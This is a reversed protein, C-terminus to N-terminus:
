IANGPGRERVSVGCARTFSIHTCARTRAGCPNVSSTTGGALGGVAGPPPPTCSQFTRYGIGRMKQRPERRVGRFVVCVRAPRRSGTERTRNQHREERALTRFQLTSDAREHRMRSPRRGRATSASLIVTSRECPKKKADLRQRIQLSPRCPGCFPEFSNGRGFPRSPNVHPWFGIKFEYGLCGFHNHGGLLLEPV